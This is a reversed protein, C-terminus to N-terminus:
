NRSFSGFDTWHRSHGNRIVWRAASWSGSGGPCLMLSAQFDSYKKLLLFAPPVEDDLVGEVRVAGYYGRVVENGSAGHEPGPALFFGVCIRSLLLCWLSPPNRLYWCPALYERSSISREELCLVVLVRM